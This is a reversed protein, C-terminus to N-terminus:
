KISERCKELLKRATIEKLRNNNNFVKGRRSRGALILNRIKLIRNSIIFVNFSEKTAM